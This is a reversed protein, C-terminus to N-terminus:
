GADALAQEVIERYHAIKEVETELERIRTEAAKLAYGLRDAQARADKAEQVHIRFSTAIPDLFRRKESLHFEWVEQATTNETIKM